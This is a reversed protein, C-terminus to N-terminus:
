HNVPRQGVGEAARELDTLAVGHREVVIERHGAGVDVQVAAALTAVSLPAASMVDM